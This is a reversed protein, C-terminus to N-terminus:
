RPNQAVRTLNNLAQEIPQLRNTTARALAKMGMLLAKADRSEAAAIAEDFDAYPNPRAAAPRRQADAEDM